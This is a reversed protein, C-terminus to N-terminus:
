RCLCESNIFNVRFEFIKEYKGTNKSAIERKLKELNETLNKEFHKTANKSSFNKNAELYEIEGINVLIEPKFNEAFEYRLAVSVTQCKEVKEVIRALGNYFGLPRVDNPLIEAQPFILMLRNPNEKLLKAAYSVSKVAERSNERVVSFAGLKRFLFYKRLHKEEMMVYTEFDFKRLIEFIVLGDWWSSHNAYIILPLKRDKNKLFDLGSVRLSHFRRKLLNRNYAAFIQEFWISKNAELM